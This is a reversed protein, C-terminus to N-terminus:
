DLQPAGEPDSMRKDAQVRRITAHALRRVGRHGPKQAELELMRIFRECGRRMDFWRMFHERGREGMQRAEDPNEALHKIAALFGAHDDPDVQIGCRSEKLIQAIENNASGVFIVPKAAAMIGYIKSPVLLGDFRPDLTVLHADPASLSQNLETRDQYPLFKVSKSFGALKDRLEGEKKGSGVFLFNYDSSGNLSQIGAIVSKFTHCAGMNGSYMLTFKTEDVHSQRFANEEAPIPVIEKGCSWSQIVQIQKESVGKRMLIQKMDSGLVIIKNATHYSFKGLLAWLGSIPGFRSLLGARHAIDPYIDMVWYVFRSRRVLRLWTGLLSIMPPTTLTVVVDVTPLKHAKVFAHRYFSLYELIRDRYRKRSGASISVRHVNVGNITEEEPLTIKRGDYLRNGTLVHVDHGLEALSECLDAMQQATAAYDPAYYQNIFLFRM